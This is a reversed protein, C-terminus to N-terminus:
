MRLAPIDAGTCSVFATLGRRLRVREHRGAHKPSRRRVMSRDCLASVNYVDKMALAKAECVNENALREVLLPAHVRGLDM